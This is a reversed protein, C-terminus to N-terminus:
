CRSLMLQNKYGTTVMDDGLVTGGTPTGEACGFDRKSM